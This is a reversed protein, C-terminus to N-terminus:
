RANGLNTFKPKYFRYGDSWVCDDRFAGMWIVDGQDKVLITNAPGTAMAVFGENSVGEPLSCQGQSNSGAAIISGDDRLAIAHDDGVSVAVVRSWAGANLWNADPSLACAVVSGDSRVGVVYRSSAAIQVINKWRCVADAAGNSGNEGTILVTDHSRLGYTTVGDSCLQKVDSWKDIDCQGQENTGNAVVTGDAHLGLVYGNGAAIDICSGWGDGDAQSRNRQSRANCWYACGSDDLLVSTLENGSFASVKAIEESKGFLMIKREAAFYKEMDVGFPAAAMLHNLSTRSQANSSLDYFSALHGDDCAGGYVGIANGNFIGVRGANRAALQQASQLESAMNFDIDFGDNVCCRAWIAVVLFTLIAIVGMVITAQKKSHEEPTMGGVNPAHAAPANRLGDGEAIGTAGSAWFSVVQGCKPCYAGDEEKIEAGCKTCYM